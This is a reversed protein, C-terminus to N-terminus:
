ANQSEASAITTATAVAAISSEEWRSPFQQKEIEHQTKPLRSLTLDPLLRSLVSAAISLVGAIAPGPIEKFYGLDNIGVGLM